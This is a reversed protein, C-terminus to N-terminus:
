AKPGELRKLLEDKTMKYDETTKKTEGRVSGAEHTLKTCVYDFHGVLESNSMNTLEKKTM